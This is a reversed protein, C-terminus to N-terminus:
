RYGSREALRHSRWWAPQARGQLGSQAIARLCSPRRLASHQRSRERWADHSCLRGSAHPPIRSCAVGRLNFWHAVAWASWGLQAGNRRSGGVSSPPIVHRGVLPVGNPLRPSKPIRIESRRKGPDDARGRDFSSERIEFRAREPTLRLSHDMGSHWTSGMACRWKRGNWKIHGPTLGNVLTSHYDSFRRGTPSRAFSSGVARRDAPVLAAGLVFLCCDRRSLDM